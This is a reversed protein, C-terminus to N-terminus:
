KRKLCLRFGLSRITDTVYTSLRSHTTSSYIFSGARIINPVRHNGRNMIPNIVKKEKCM